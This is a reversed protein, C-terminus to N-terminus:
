ERTFRASKENASLVLEGDSLIATAEKGEEDASVLKVEGGETSEWTGAAVHSGDPEVVTFRGDETMTLIMAEGPDEEGQWTGVYSPQTACGATLLALGAVMIMTNKKM